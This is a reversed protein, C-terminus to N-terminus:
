LMGKPPKAIQDGHKVWFRYARIKEKATITFEKAMEKQPM